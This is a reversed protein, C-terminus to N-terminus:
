RTIWVKYMRIYIRICIRVMCTHTYIYLNAFGNLMVHTRAYQGFGFLLVQPLCSAAVCDSRQISSIGTFVGLETLIKKNHSIIRVGWVMANRNVGREFFKGNLKVLYSVSTYAIANAHFRSDKLQDLLLLARQWQAASRLDCVDPALHYPIGLWCSRSSFCGVTYHNSYCPFCVWHM